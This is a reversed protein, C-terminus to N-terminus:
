LTSLLADITLGSMLISNNNMSIGSYLKTGTKVGLKARILVREATNKSGFLPLIEIGGFHKNTLVSVIKDMVLVDSIICFYGNPKVRACSKKVWNVIDANHHANHRAPTGNFYPPNTLVLDFNKTTSWNYIDENILEISQNNLNANQQCIDLMDKSIDIGSIKLNPNHSLLCLSVGGTGIGIDLATKINKPAFAALWVADSTPNYISRKFNVKGGLLTFFEQKEAM